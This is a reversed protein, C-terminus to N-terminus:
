TGDKALQMGFADADTVPLHCGEDTCLQVSFTGPDAIAAVHSLRAGWFARDRESEVRIVDSHRDFSRSLLGM